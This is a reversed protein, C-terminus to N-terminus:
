VSNNPRDSHRKQKKKKKYKDNIFAAASIEHILRHCTVATKSMVMWMRSIIRPYLRTQM